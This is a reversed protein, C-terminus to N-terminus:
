KRLREVKEQVSLTRKVLEDINTNSFGIMAVKVRGGTPGTYRDDPIKWGAAGAISGATAGNCDTDLGGMVAIEMAKHVDGAGYLLAMVVVLANNVTHVASMNPLEKEIMCAFDEFTKCDKKWDLAKNIAAALRSKAPIKSLGTKIIRVPDDYVFAASICAAVFMEGYIGNARHTWHGDRWALEAALEPNGPVSYGFFDARIQAGIWERYPNNFSSTFEPTPRRKHADLRPSIMNYNMIAQTEATCIVNYPLSNNWCDAIDTWTFGLGKQEMVKLGVLTYHIDDDAKIFSIKERTSDFCFINKPDKEPDPMPVFNRLPWANKNQLYQKIALRGNKGYWGAMGLVEVPKGLSCGHTRGIWAKKVREAMQSETLNM